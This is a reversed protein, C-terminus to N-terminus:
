KLLIMKKTQVFDGAQLKYFFIGSPLTSANFDITHNGVEEEKNILQQVEEGLCSYVVLEVQSKLPLSYEITTTPNFPNPFNQHLVFDTPTLNEVYVVDSYEFSGAFDIQKLRYALLNSTINSIDDFYSYSQPETTTGHGAVFGIVDWNDDQSSRLIDFGSNSIESVTSWNLTVKGQSTSATFSTLEVPIVGSTTTRLITGNNGVAWGTNQNIFCVSNLNTNIGSTQEIWNLGGDTTKLILGTDGGIFGGYGLGVVWGINNDVFYINNYRDYMGGMYQFSWDEGGNTTKLIYPDYINGVVWGTNVDTFYVSTFEYDGIPSQDIWNEGGDTTKLVIGWDGVAWGLNNNFFYVSFLPYTNNGIYQTIWEDGSNSTKL